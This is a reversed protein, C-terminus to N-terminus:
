CDSWSGVVVEVDRVVLVDMVVTWDGEDTSAKGVGVGSVSGESEDVEDDVVASDSSTMGTCIVVELDGSSAGAGVSVPKPKPNPGPIKPPPSPSSSLSWSWLPLLKTPLEAPPPVLVLVLTSPTVVVTNTM